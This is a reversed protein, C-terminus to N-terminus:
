KKQKPSTVIIGKRVVCKKGVYNKEELGYNRLYNYSVGLTDKDWSDCMAKINGYYYHNDGLQLHIIAREQKVKDEMTVFISFINRYNIIHM